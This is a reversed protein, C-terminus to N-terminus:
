GSINVVLQGFLEAENDVIGILATGVQEEETGWQIIYQRSAETSSDSESLVPADIGQFHAVYADFSDLPGTFNANFTSLDGEVYNTSAVITAGEPLPFDSPWGDPLEGEAAIVVEGDDSEFVVEGDDEDVSVSGTEGDDGEFEIVGDEGNVNVVVEEGDEGEMTITFEEDGLDDLEVEVGGQELAQETAEELVAGCSTLLLFSAALLLARLPDNKM